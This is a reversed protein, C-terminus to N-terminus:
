HKCHEDYEDDDDDQVSRINEVIQASQQENHEIDVARGLAKGIMEVRNITAAWRLQVRDAIPLGPDIDDKMEQYAVKIERLMEAYAARALPSKLTTKM